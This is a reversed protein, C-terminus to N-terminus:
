KGYVIIGPLTLLVAAHKYILTRILAPILSHLKCTLCGLMKIVCQALSSVLAATLTLIPLFTLLRACRTSVANSVVVTTRSPASM